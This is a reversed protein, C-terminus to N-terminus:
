TWEHRTRCPPSAEAVFFPGQQFVPAPEVLQRNSDVLAWIRGPLDCKSELPTYRPGDELHTFEKVGEQYFLQACNPEIQLATPLKLALRRLLVRLLFVSKGIGPQGTVVLADYAAATCCTSLAFEEAEKYESRIFIKECDFYWCRDMAQSKIMVDRNSPVVDPLILSPDDIPDPGRDVQETKDFSDLDKGWASSWFQVWGYDESDRFHSNPFPPNLLSEILETQHSTYRQLSRLTTPEPITTPNLNSSM